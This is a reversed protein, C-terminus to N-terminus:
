MSMFDDDFPTAETGRNSIVVHPQVFESSEKQLLKSEQFEDEYIDACFNM